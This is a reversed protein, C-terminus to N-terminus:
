NRRGGGPNNQGSLIELQQYIDSAFTKAAEMVEPSASQRKTESDKEFSVNDMKNRAKSYSQSIVKMREVM